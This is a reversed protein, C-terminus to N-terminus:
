NSMDLIEASALARGRDNRADHRADGGIVLLSGDLLTVLSFRARADSLAPGREFEGTAPDWLETTARSPDIFEDTMTGSGGIVIVRGDPLLAGQHARRAFEMTGAPEFMGSTPDWTEATRLPGFYHPDGKPDSTDGGTVLVRGDRLLTASQGSAILDRTEDVRVFANTAPDYVESSEPDDSSWSTNGMLLVRGDPLLTATHWERSELVEPGVVATGDPSWLFSSASQGTPCRRLGSFQREVTAVLCADSRVILVRGDALTTATLGSPLAPMAGVTTFGGTAPNWVETPM